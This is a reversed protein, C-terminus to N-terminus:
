ENLEFTEEVVLNDSYEYSDEIVSHIVTRKGSNRGSCTSLTLIRPRHSLDVTDPGGAYENKELIYDMYEDYTRNDTPYSYTKGKANELYYAFIHCKYARNPTYYYFYPDQEVLGEETRIKKLSGFMSGNRMNHGYIITTMDKLHPDSWADIYLCGSSSKTGDIAEHLYTSEEDGYVVPYSLDLLPFYLWGLFDENIELLADYDIDLYPFGAYMMAVADESGVSAEEKVYLAVGDYIAEAEAYSNYIQFLKFGSFLIVGICITPVLIDLIKMGRGSKRPEEATETQETNKEETSM